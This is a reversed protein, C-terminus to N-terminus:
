TSFPERQGVENKRRLDELLVIPFRDMWRNEYGSLTHKELLLEMANLVETLFHDVTTAGKLVTSRSEGSELVVGKYGNFCLLDYQLEEGTRKLMLDLDGSDEGCFHVKASEAGERLTKAAEAFNGLSDYIYSAPVPVEDITATAWGAGVLEYKLSFAM